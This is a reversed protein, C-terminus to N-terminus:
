ENLGAQEYCAPSHKLAEVFRGVCESRRNLLRTALDRTLRKELDAGRLFHLHWKAAIASLCSEFPSPSRWPEGHIGALVLPGEANDAVCREIWRVVDPPLAHDGGASVVILDAGNVRQIDPEADDRAYLSAFGWGRLDFRLEHGTAWSIRELMQRARIGDSLNEYAIVVNLVGAGRQVAPSATLLPGTELGAHSSPLDTAIMLASAILPVMERLQRGGSQHRLWHSVHSLARRAEGLFRVPRFNGHLVEKQEAPQLIVAIQVGQPLVELLAVGVEDGGGAHFCIRHRSLASPPVASLSDGIM